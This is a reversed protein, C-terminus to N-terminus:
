ARLEFTQYDSRRDTGDENEGLYFSVDISRADIDYVAHWITRGGTDADPNGTMERAFAKTFRVSAQTDRM